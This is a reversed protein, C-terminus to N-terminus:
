TTSSRSTPIRTGRMNLDRGFSVDTHDPFASVDVGTYLPPLAGRYIGRQVSMLNDDFTIHVDYWQGPTNDVMAPPLGFTDPGDAEWASLYLRDPEIVLALFRWEGGADTGLGTLALGYYNPLYLGPMAAPDHPSQYSFMLTELDGPVGTREIRPALEGSDEELKGDASWESGESPAYDESLASMDDLM